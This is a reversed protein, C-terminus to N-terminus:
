GQFPNESRRMESPNTFRTILNEFLAIEPLRGKSNRLDQCILLSSLSEHSDNFNLVARSLSMGQSQIIACIQLVISSSVDSLHGWGRMLM